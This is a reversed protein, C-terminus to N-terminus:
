FLCPLFAFVFFEELKGPTAAKIEVFLDIMEENDACLFSTNM